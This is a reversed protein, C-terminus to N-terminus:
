THGINSHSIIGLPKNSKKYLEIINAKLEFTDTSLDMFKKNRYPSTGNYVAEGIRYHNINEPLAEKNILPLAISSGGSIIPLSTNFKEELLEKHSCLNSLNDYTPEIGYMCGLNTGLGIIKINSLNYIKEYLEIINDLPVGERLEGLEIMIIVQHIKNLEKAKENLAIITEYSTNLSIDAFRIVEEVYKLETPKIYMTKLKPNLEKVIQLGSLHSDAVSDISTNNSNLIESNIIEKLIERNSGLIKNVITWKKNHKKMFSDIKEINELIRNIYINITSM